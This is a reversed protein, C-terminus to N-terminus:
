RSKSWARGERHDDITERFLFEAKKVSEAVRFNDGFKAYKASLLEKEAPHEIWYDIRRALAEADDAPYLCRDDLAFQTTASTKSDCIVPVLGCSLAELCAIAEIEVIATHAYLDCSNILRILDPQSYFQIIPPNTLSAGKKLLKEKCPGNGALYVQIDKEYKSRSVADLLVSQRKEPSLRGTMLINFKTSDTCPEVEQPYFTEDVGNSIVYLKGKYGHRHLEGAIFKSPCHIHRFNKYFMQYLLKYIGRNIGAIKELHLINSANEPQLHFAASCPVGLERAIKLVQIEFPMPLIFHAIDAGELARRATEENFKAFGFGQSHGIRTAFGYQSEEVFYNEPSPEGIALVRVEHGRARLADVFRHATMATGNTLDNFIDAVFVIVM